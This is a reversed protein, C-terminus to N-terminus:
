DYGICVRVRVSCAAPAQEETAPTLIFRWPPTEVSVGFIHWISKFDVQSFQLGNMRWGKNGCQDDSGVMALKVTSTLLVVLSCMQANAIREIRLPTSLQLSSQVALASPDRRLLSLSPLPLTRKSGQCCVSTWLPRKITTVGGQLAPGFQRCLWSARHVDKVVRLNRSDPLYWELLEWRLIVWIRGRTKDDNLKFQIWFDESKLNQFIGEEYRHFAVWNRYVGRSGLSVYQEWIYIYIYIYICIYMCVYIYISVYVYTYVYMFMYAYMCAYMVRVCMGLYMCLHMCVHVYVCM